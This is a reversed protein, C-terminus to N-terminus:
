QFKMRIGFRISSLDISVPISQQSGGWWYDQFTAAKRTMLEYSVDLDFAAGPGAGIELGVGGRLGGSVAKFYAAPDGTAPLGTHIYTWAGGLELYPRPASADFPLTYFVVAAGATLCEGTTYAVDLQIGIDRSVLLEPAFNLLPSVSVTPPGIPGNKLGSLNPSITRFGIGLALAPYRPPLEIGPARALPLTDEALAVIRAPWMLDLSDPQVREKVDWSVVQRPASVSRDPVVERWAIRGGSAYSLDVPMSGMVYGGDEIERYHAVKEAMTFIAQWRFRVLSDRANAAGGFTFVVACTSDPLEVVIAHSFGRVESFLKYRECAAASIVEGLSESLVIVRCSDPLSRGNAGQLPILTLLLFPTLAIRSM